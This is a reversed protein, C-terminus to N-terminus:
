AREEDRLVARLLLDRQSSVWCGLAPLNEVEVVIVGLAPLVSRLVASRMEWLRCRRRRCRM